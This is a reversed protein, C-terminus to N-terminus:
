NTVQKPRDTPDILTALAKQLEDAPAPKQLVVCEAFGEEVISKAYGTLFVIPIKKDRLVRALPFILEGGLNVDLIAGDIHTNLTATMAERLDVCPGVVDCGMQNVLESTLMGVLAEDEVVLIQPAKTQPPLTNPQSVNAEEHQSVISIAIRCLLGEPRWDFDATDGKSRNLSAEIIRTGFGKSQPKAPAPGCTERWTLLFRGDKLDWSLHVQGAPVSLAGYKAANTALEHIMLAIAQAKDAPLIIAPGEWAARCEGDTQYPAFEETVLRAIDAGQWRSQSLLEHSTALARVRGEVSGVYDEITTARGLRIIAQVVALANRARHDVERALLSQKHEAEKRDTIDITVGSVCEPREHADLTVAAAILCWRTEGNARVIRVETQFTRSTLTASNLLKQLNAWDEPHFLSPVYGDPPAQTQPDIGFIRYQGEDVTWHGTRVNFEWSGMNGAALALTRSQEIERLAATREAVRQELENNLAELERTTRYLEAFVRVKARLVEPVVPVPVYDVAGVDYGRLSDAESVHIASIFIIATRQFRPHDRIMRALEFGDLDPMCVDILVVAVETKLLVELAEKASSTKILNEGLEGLIVEYSLLKGPQDDVLLVNVKGNPGMAM